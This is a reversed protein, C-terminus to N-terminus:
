WVHCLEYLAPSKCCLAAALKKVADLIETYDDWRLDSTWPRWGAGNRFGHFGKAGLHELTGMRDVVPPLLRALKEFEPIHGLLLKQVMLYKGILSALKQSRGYIPGKNEGWFLGKQKDADNNLGELLEKWPGNLFDTPSLTTVTPWITGFFEKLRETMLREVLPGVTWTMGTPLKTRALTARLARSISGADLAGPVPKAKWVRLLFCNAAANWQVSSCPNKCNCQCGVRIASTGTNLISPHTTAHINVTSAGGQNRLEDLFQGTATVIWKRWGSGPEGSVIVWAGSPSLDSIDNKVCLVGNDEVIDGSKLAERATRYNQAINSAAKRALDIGLISGACITVKKTDTNFLGTADIGDQEIHIEIIPM